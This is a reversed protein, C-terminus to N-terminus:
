ATGTAKNIAAGAANGVGAAKDVITQAVDGAKGVGPLKKVLGIVVGILAWVLGGLVVVAAFLTLIFALPHQRALGWLSRLFTM